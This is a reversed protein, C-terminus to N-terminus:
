FIEPASVLVFSAHLDIVIHFKLYLVNNRSNKTVKRSM